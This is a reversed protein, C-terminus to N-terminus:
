QSFFRWPLPFHPAVRGWWSAAQGVQRDGRAEDVREHKRSREERFDWLKQRMRNKKTILGGISLDQGRSCTTGGIYVLGQRGGDENL